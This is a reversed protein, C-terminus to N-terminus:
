GKNVWWERLEQVFRREEDGRQAEAATCVERDELTLEKGAKIKQSWTIQDNDSSLNHETIKLNFKWACWSSSENSRMYLGVGKKIPLVDFGRLLILDGDELVPLAPKWPRYIKVSVKNPWFDEDSILFETVYDKPGREARLPRTSSKTVIAIVDALDNPFQSVKTSVKTMLNSLPTYYGWATNLGKTQSPQVQSFKFDSLQSSPYDEKDDKLEDRPSQAMLKQHKVIPVRSRATDFQSSLIDDKEDFEVGESDFRDARLTQSDPFPDDELSRPPSSPQYQRKSKRPSLSPDLKAISRDRAKSSPQYQQKTKRPSLWTDLNSSSGDGLARMKQSLTETEALFAEFFDEGKLETLKAALAESADQTSREFSTVDTKACAVVKRIKQSSRNHQQFDRDVSQQSARSQQNHRPCNPSTQTLKPTPPCTGQDVHALFSPESQTLQSADPTLLTSETVSQQPRSRQRRSSQQPQIVETTPNPYSNQNDLYPDSMIPPPSSVPQANHEGIGHPSYGASVKVQTTPSDHDDDTTAESDHGRSSPPATTVSGDSHVMGEFTDQIVLRPRKITDQSSALAQSTQNELQTTLQSGGLARRRSVRPAFTVAPRRNSLKQREPVIKPQEDQSRAILQGETHEEVAPVYDDMVDALVPNEMAEDANNSFEYTDKIETREYLEHKITPLPATSPVVQPNDESESDSGLEIVVTKRTQPLPATSPPVRDNIPSPMSPAVNSAHPTDSTSLSSPFRDESMVAPVFSSSPPTENAGDFSPIYQSGLTELGHTISGRDLDDDDESGSSEMADHDENDEDVGSGYDEEDEDEEESEEEDEESKEEVEDDILNARSVRADEQDGDLSELDSDGGSSSNDDSDSLLIIVESASKLPRASTSLPPGFRHDPGISVGGKEESDRGEHEVVKEEQSNEEESEEDSMDSYQGRVMGEAEIQKAEGDNGMDADRALAMVVDEESEDFAAQELEASDKMLADSSSLEIATLNPADPVHEVDLISAQLAHGSVADVLPLEPYQIVVQDVEGFNLLEGGLKAFEADAIDCDAMEAGAMKALVQTSVVHEKMYSTQTHIVSTAQVSDQHLVPDSDVSVLPFGDEVKTELMDKPSCTESLSSNTPMKGLPLEGRPVTSKLNEKPVMEPKVIEINLTAALQREPPDLDIEVETNDIQPATINNTDPDDVETSYRRDLGDSEFGFGFGFGPLSKRLPVMFGQSPQWDSADNDMYSTALDDGPFPSPLPLAASQQPRLDPTKPSRPRSPPAMSAVPSSDFNSTQIMPLSPTPGVGDASDSPRGVISQIAEKQRVKLEEQNRDRQFNQRRQLDESGLEEVGPVESDAEDRSNKPRKSESRGAREDGLNEGQLQQREQSEMGLDSRRRAQREIVEHYVEDSELLDRALSSTRQYGMYSGEGDPVGSAKGNEVCDLAVISDSSPLNFFSAEEQHLSATDMPESFDPLDKTEFKTPEDIGENTGAFTADRFVSFSQRLPSEYSRDRSTRDFSVSAQVDEMDTDEETDGSVQNMLEQTYRARLEHTYTETTRAARPSTESIPSQSEENPTSGHSAKSPSLLDEDHIWDTTRNGKTPSPVDGDVKWRAEIGWSHRAKKRIPEGEIRLFPNYPSDVLLGGSVRARKHFASSAPTSLNNLESLRPDAYAFNPGTPTFPSPSRSRESVIDDEM